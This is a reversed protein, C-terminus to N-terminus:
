SLVFGTLLLIWGCVILFRNLADTGYRGEMFKRLREKMVTIGQKETIDTYYVM